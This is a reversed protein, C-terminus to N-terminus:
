RYAVLDSDDTLIYLTMNAIVPSVRVPGELPIKDLLKGTEPSFTLAQRNSGAVILRGGGIVPGVWQIPHKKEAEKEFAPLSSVWLIRGNNASLCVLQSDSTIMFLYAGAIAPTNWGGIDRDWLRQGTRLDVAATEGSQSVAFVRGQSMIPLARVHAVASLEDSRRSGALSDAWIVQGTDARLAVLDGSTFPAVVIDSDVAATVGGILSVTEALAQFPPWLERGTEVDLAHVRSEVDIIFLRGNSVTPPAQGPLGTSQRWLIKGNDADLAFAKGFGSTVLVRGQDYAIGGPITDDDAENAVLNQRWLRRGSTADFASVLHQTDMTFVRNNAIIPPPLWPRNTGKSRGADVVWLRQRFGEAALNHMAHSSNGGAQAWEANAVAPPLSIQASDVNVEPNLAKQHELVSIRKGELPTKSEGFWDCGSLVLGVALSVV